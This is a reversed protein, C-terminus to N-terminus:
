AIARRGCAGFFAGFILNRVVLSEYGTVVLMAASLLACGAVVVILVRRAGILDSLVGGVILTAFYALL